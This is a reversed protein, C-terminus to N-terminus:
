WLRLGMPLVMKRTDQPLRGVHGREKWVLLCENPLKGGSRRMLEKPAIPESTLKHCWPCRKGDAHRVGHNYVEVADYVFGCHCLYRVYEVDNERSKVYEVFKVLGIPLQKVPWPAVPKSVKM